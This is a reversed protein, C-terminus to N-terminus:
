WPPGTDDPDGSPFPDLGMSPAPAPPPPPTPAPTPPPAAPTSRPKKPKPPPEAAAPTPVGTLPAPVVAVATASADFPATTARGDADVGTLLSVSREAGDLLGQCRNLLRVGREYRALAATLEPGGQELEAVIRTLEDLAAEFGIEADAQDPM